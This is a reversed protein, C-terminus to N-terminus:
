KKSECPMKKQENGLTVSELKFEMSEDDSYYGNQFIRQTSNVELKDHGRGNIIKVEFTMKKRYQNDFEIAWEAGSPMKKVRYKLYKYCDTSQWKSWNRDIELLEKKYSFSSITLISIVLILWSRVTPKLILRLLKM